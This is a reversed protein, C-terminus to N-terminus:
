GDREREAMKEGERGGDWGVVSRKEEGPSFVDCSLVLFSLMSRGGHVAGRLYMLLGCYSCGKWGLICVLLLSQHLYVFAESVQRM